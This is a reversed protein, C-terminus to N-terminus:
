NVSLAGSVINKVDEGLNINITKGKVFVTLKRSEDFSYDFKTFDIVTNGNKDLETVSPDLVAVERYVAMRMKNENLAKSHCNFDDLASHSSCKSIVNILIQNGTVSDHEIEFKCGNCTDPAWTKAM